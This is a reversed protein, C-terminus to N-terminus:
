VFYHDEVAKIAESLKVAETINRSEIIGDKYDCVYGFVLGYGYAAGSYIGGRYINDIRFVIEDDEISWGTENRMGM